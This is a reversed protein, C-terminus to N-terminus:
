EQVCGGIEAKFVSGSQAEFGNELTVSKGARFITNAPSIIDSTATITETAQKTSNGSSFDSSITDATPVVDLFAPSALVSPCAGNQVVARLQTDQSFYVNEFVLSDTLNALPIIVNTFNDFSLEWYNVAGIHNELKLKGSNIVPCIEKGGTVNGGVSPANVHFDVPTRCTPVATNELYFINNGPTTTNTIRSGSIGVPNFTDGSFLPSGGSLAAYWQNTGVTPFINKDSIIRFRGFQGNNFAAVVLIYTTGSTLPHSLKSLNGVGSNEDGRLFNTAPTAPDFSTEYLMIYTDVASSLVELTTIATFNATFTLTQYHVATGQNSGVYSTRNNGFTRRVVPSSATTAGNAIKGYVDSPGVLGENSPVSSNQCINYTAVQPVPSPLVTVYVKAPIAIGCLLNSLAFNYTVVIPQNTTNVLVESVAASSGSGTPNSIGSVIPREWVFSVGSTAVTATYNFVSNSCVTLQQASTLVEGGMPVFDEIVLRDDSTAGTSANAGLGRRTFAKNLACFYKGGFLLTDAKLIADRADVFSPSCPQLRLGENVLKLAAVNGVLNATNYIDAVIQNDEFIIEWTVDWLITAWISGIGHPRSFASNNVQGYTVPGNVNLMDYSYQYPRIGSGNTAQGFAYTGIGRPINASAENPSLSAWNTTLMLALYDSWGEGAQEYNSLCSNTAPGGALRKSWGHGYEHAIIGNDFDSDPQYGNADSWITMEMRGNGGDVPTFFRANNTSYSDQADAYVFDNGVGGRVLNDNQFNGSPEDFGYKWLVDHILNNWYFLNVIAANQNGAATNLGQTYPFDFELTASTPSAGTTNSNSVDEQAWVNNGRTTTYDMFGDSHWGNTSGPGTAAPVFRTYPNSVVTRGGHIPSELPIDFVNYSNPALTTVSSNQSQEDKCIHPTTLHEPTGFDCYIVDDETRVVENSMANVFIRWVHDHDKTELSVEWVLQVEPGSHETEIYESPLWYQKVLILEESVAQDKFSIVDVEGLANQITEITKIDTVKSPSLGVSVAATQLANIAAVQPKNSSTKEKINQVFTNGSHVVEGDKLTLNIIGNYVDTSRFVQKFYVHHWGTTPSKYEHSVKMEAIDAVDLKKTLTNSQIYTKSVEVADQASAIGSCFMITFLLKFYRLVVKM